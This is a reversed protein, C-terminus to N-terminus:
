AREDFIFSVLNNKGLVVRDGKTLRYSEGTSLRRDNVYTGNSSGLDELFYGQYDIVIRAHVRSVVDGDPLISLDIDPPFRDNPKGLYIVRDESPLPFVQNTQQHSLQAKLHTPKAQPAIPENRQPNQLPAINDPVVAKGPDIPFPVANIGLVNAQHYVPLPSPSVKAPQAFGPAAGQYLNLSDQRLAVGCQGCFSATKLVLIGCHSCNVSPQISAKCSQCHITWDPNPSNCRPCVLM